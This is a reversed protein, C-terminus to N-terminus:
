RVPRLGRRRPFRDHCECCRRSPNQTAAAPTQEDHVSSPRIPPDRPLLDAFADRRVDVGPRGTLDHLQELGADRLPHATSARMVRATNAAPAGSANSSTVRSPRKPMTSCRRSPGVRSCSQLSAGHGGLLHARDQCSECMRECCVAAAPHRREGRSSLHRIASRGRCVEPAIAVADEGQNIAQRRLVPQAMGVEVGFTIMVASPGFDDVPGTREARGGDECQERWRRRVSSTRASASGSGGRTMLAATCDSYALSASM